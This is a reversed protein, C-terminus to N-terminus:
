CFFFVNAYPNGERAYIFFPASFINLAMTKQDNEANDVGRVRAREGCPLPFRLSGNILETGAKV